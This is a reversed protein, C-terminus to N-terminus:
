WESPRDGVGSRGSPRHNRRGARRLRANDRLLADTCEGGRHRRDVMRPGRARSVARVVPRPPVAAAVDHGLRLGSHAAAGTLEYALAVRGDVAALQAQMVLAYWRQLPLHSSSPWRRSRSSWREFRALDAARLVDAALWVRGQFALEANGEGQALSVLRDGIAIREELHEPSRLTFQRAHLAVGLAAADRSQEASRLAQESQTRSAGGGAHWYLEIALRSELRALDAANVVREAAEELLRVLEWDVRGATVM